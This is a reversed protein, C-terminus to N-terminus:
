AWHFIEDRPPKIFTLAGFPHVWEYFAAIEFLIFTTTMAVIYFFLSLRFEHSSMSVHLLVGSFLVPFFIYINRLKGTFM